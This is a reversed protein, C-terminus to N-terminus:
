FYENAAFDSQVIFLKKFLSLNNIEYFLLLAIKYETVDVSRFSLPFSKYALLIANSLIRATRKNGDEFPQIYNVLVLVLFAKAFPYEIANILECLKELAERIQFENDIPFYNTGTIRVSRKRINRSIGLEDSLISHLYEIKAVSIEKFESSEKRIFDIAKKHNLLMVAEEKSKGLAFIGDKLLTETELLSYTNGEIVSSKWSLDITVREFERKFLAPSLESIKKQYKKLLRGFMLKESRSFIEVKRLEQFVEFNFIIKTGREDQPASIYEVGNIPTLFKSSKKIRYKTARGFGNKEILGLDLLYRLDRKFTADSIKFLSNNLVESSSKWTDFSLHALIKSHRDLIDM